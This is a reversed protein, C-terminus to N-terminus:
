SKESSEGEPKRICYFVCQLFKEGDLADRRCAKYCKLLDKTSPFKGKAPM